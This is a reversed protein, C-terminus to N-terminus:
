TMSESYRVIALNWNAEMISVVGFNGTGSAYSRQLRLELSNTWGQLHAMILKAHTFNIINNTVNDGRARNHM